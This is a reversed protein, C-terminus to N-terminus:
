GGSTSCVPSASGSLVPDVLFKKGDLQMFYSSHGFWVLVDKNRDLALLDITKSPLVMAPKGRKSKGFFFKRMVGLYSAGETLAPTSSRNHFQGNKYNPSQQILQLREGSSMKGFQPRQLFTVVAIALLMIVSLIALLM